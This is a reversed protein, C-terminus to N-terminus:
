ASRPASGGAEGHPGPAANGHRGERCQHRPGPRATPIRNRTSPRDEVLSRLLEVFIAAPTAAPLKSTGSAIIEADAAILKKRDDILFEDLGTSAQGAPHFERSLALGSLSFETGTYPKSPLRPKSVGSTRAVPESPSPSNTTAPSRHRISERLSLAASSSISRPKPTSSSNSWTASAPEPPETTKTPSVSFTLQAIFKNKEEQVRHQRSQNRPRRRRPSRERIQLFVTGAHTAPINGNQSALARQEM